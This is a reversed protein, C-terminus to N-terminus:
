SGAVPHPPCGRDGVMWGNAGEVRSAGNSCNQNEWGYTPSSASAPSGPTEDREAFSCLGSPGQVGPVRVTRLQQWPSSHQGVVDGVLTPCIGRGPCGCRELRAWGWAAMLQPDGPVGTSLCTGPSCLGIYLGPDTGAAIPAEDQEEADRQQGLGVSSSRHQWSGAAAARSRSASGAALSPVVEARRGRAAGEGACRAGRSYRHGVGRPSRTPSGAHCWGCAGPPHLSFARQLSQQNACSEPSVPPCFRGLALRNSTPPHRPQTLTPPSMCWCGGQQLEAERQAANENDRIVSRAALCHLPKDWPKGVRRPPDERGLGERPQLLSELSATVEWSVPKGARLAHIVVQCRLPLGADGLSPEGLEPAPSASFLYSPEVLM